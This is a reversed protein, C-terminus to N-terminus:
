YWDHKEDRNLKNIAQMEEATLAFDFLSINELQHDPNSSGPIVVVGKQLDWRLIVQAVSVGYKEAIKVLTEDQLLEAQHGRGGLPYWGEVAIGKDHMYKIVASEQYYPHIENQVLAPIITVQPLFEEMEEIYYNSLGISKIKGQRVYDEMVKYAEVDNEGPHHLLMLDIYEVGLNELAKDIGLKAQAYQSPYLKTTIFIEKRDIGSEKIAIGIEKENGYMYATDIKRYGQQLASKVAEICSDGTLSYTGLGIVPMEYGSNLKVAPIKGNKANNLDFVYKDSLNEKLNGAEKNIGNKYYLYGIIGLTALSILGAILIKKSM